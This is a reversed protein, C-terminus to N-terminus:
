YQKILEKLHQPQNLDPDALVEQFLYNLIEGVLPGPPIHLLEMVDGGTIVLDKIGFAPHAHSSFEHTM